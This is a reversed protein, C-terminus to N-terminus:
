TVRNYIDILNQTTTRLDHHQEVYQRGALGIRQRQDPHALLDLIAASFDVPTNAVRVHEMDRADLGRLAVATAVVPTANSFAELVKVQIGSGYKVPALAIAARQLYDSISDVYGTVNIQASQLGSIQKVPNAGVLQLMVDPRQQVVLPFIEQVFYQAAAINPHYNLTGTIVLTNESRIQTDVRQSLNLGLPALYIRDHYVNDREFLMKDQQSIVLTAPFQGTLSWEYKKLRPAELRAALQWFPSVSTTAAQEYLSTLHDVADWIVKRNTALRMGYESMRLHEVHIIDPTNTQLFTNIKRMLAESWMIRAQLPLGSRLASLINVLAMPKTLPEWILRCGMQQLRSLHREDDINRRLTAVTVQHGADLLGRIQFYSRVKTPNPVHPVLYLINMLTAKLHPLYFQSVLILMFTIM